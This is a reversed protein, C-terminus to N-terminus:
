YDNRRDFRHERDEKRNNRIMWIVWGLLGALSLGIITLAAHLHQPM